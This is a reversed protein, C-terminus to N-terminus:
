ITASNGGKLIFNDEAELYAKTMPHMEEWQEQISKVYGFKLFLEAIKKASLTEEKYRAKIMSATTQPYHGVYWKPKSTILNFLEDTTM